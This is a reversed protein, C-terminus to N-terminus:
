RRHSRTGFFCGQANKSATQKISIVAKEGLAEAELRTRELPVIWEHMSQGQRRRALNWANTPLSETAKTWSKGCRRFAM